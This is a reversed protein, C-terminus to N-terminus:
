SAVPLAAVAVLVAALEEDSQWGLVDDTIPTSYDLYFFEGDFTGVAIEWLGADGGHSFDHRVVSAAWGNPFTFVHAEGGHLPFSKTPAFEVPPPKSADGRSAEEPTSLAALMRTLDTM